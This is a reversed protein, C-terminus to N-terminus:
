VECLIQNLQWLNNSLSWNLQVYMAHVGEKIGIISIQATGDNKIQASRPIFELPLQKFCHLKAITRNIDPEVLTPNVNNGLLSIIQDKSIGGNIGGYIAIVQDNLIQEQEQNINQLSAEQKRSAMVYFSTGLVCLGAIVLLFIERPRFGVGHKHRM